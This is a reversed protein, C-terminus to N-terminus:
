NRTFCISSLRSFLATLYVSFPLDDNFSGQQLPRSVLNNDLQGDTVGADAHGRINQGPYKRWEGLGIGAYGAFEAAGPQAQGNAALKGQQHSAADPRLTFLPFAAAKGEFKRKLQRYM